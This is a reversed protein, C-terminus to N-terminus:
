KINKRLRSLSTPTIGLFDALDKLPIRQLLETQQMTTLYREEANMNQFSLLGDVVKLFANEWVQRGFQQWVPYEQYLREMSESKITFLITDEIAQINYKSPVKNRISILDTFFDNELAVWATRKYDNSDFSIRLGGSKIFYYDNAFHGHKLIFKDKKIRHEKFNSLITEIESEDINIQSKIFDYLEKM